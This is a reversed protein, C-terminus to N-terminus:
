QAGKSALAAKVWKTCDHDDNLWDVIGALSNHEVADQLRVGQSLNHMFTSHSIADQSMHTTYNHRTSDDGPVYAVCWPLPKGDAEWKGDDCIGPYAEKKLWKDSMVIPNVNSQIECMRGEDKWYETLICWQCTKCSGTEAREILVDLIEKAQLKQIM